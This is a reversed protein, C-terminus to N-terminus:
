IKGEKQVLIARVPSADLGELKLPLAILTYLGPAVKSLDLNELIRINHESCLHHVPLDKSTSHDVSPTDVGILLTKYAALYEVCENAIYPFDDPFRQFLDTCGTKFLVRPALELHKIHDSTISRLPMQKEIDVVICPGLFAELPLQDVTLGNKIYHAPADIHTGVHSSFKIESVKVPCGNKIDCVTTFKTGPDAPFGCLKPTITYSIDIINM